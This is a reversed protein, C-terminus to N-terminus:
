GSRRDGHQSAPRARAPAHEHVWLPCEECGDGGAQVKYGPRADAGGLHRRGLWEPAGKKLDGEWHGQLTSTAVDAPREASLTMNAIQGRRDTGRAQSLATYTTEASLLTGM